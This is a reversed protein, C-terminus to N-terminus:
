PAPSTAGTGPKRNLFKLFGEDRGLVYTTTSPSLASRYAQLTRYYEYFAPDKATSATILRISESDGEGRLRQADRQAEAILKTATAEAEARIRRSESTGRGRIESAVRDRDSIMRTFVSQTVQDPFEARRIRVDVVRIGYGAAQVDKDVQTRVEQMISDRRESLIDEFRYRSLIARLVSNVTPELRGKLTEERGGVSNLYARADTIQYRAFPDVVVQLQGILLTQAPMDLALIRRDFTIVEQIFPLKVHLGPRDTERVFRGFQRVVASQSQNVVYLADSVMFLGVAVAALLALTRPTM